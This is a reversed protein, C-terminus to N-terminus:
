RCNRSSKVALGTTLGKSVLWDLGVKSDFVAGPDEVIKKLDM